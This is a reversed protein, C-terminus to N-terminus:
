TIEAPGQIVWQGGSFKLRGSVKSRQVSEQKHLTANAMVTRKKRKEKLAHHIYIYSAAALQLSM